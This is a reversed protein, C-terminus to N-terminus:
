PRHARGEERLVHDSQRRCRRGKKHPRDVATLAEFIDAIAMMRAVPSGTRGADPAESLRHRGDKTIAAPSKPIQRLHKPFPLRSLMIVPRCSTSTSRTASRKRSRVASWSCTTCNGPQLATGSGEDPLGVPQRRRDAGQRHSSGTSRATPLCRSWSPSPPPPHARSENRRRMPSASVTTWRVDGACNPSPACGIRTTRQWFSAVRTARRSSPLIM